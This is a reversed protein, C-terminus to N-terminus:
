RTQALDEKRWGRTANARSASIPANRAHATLCVSGPATLINLHVISWNRNSSISNALLM